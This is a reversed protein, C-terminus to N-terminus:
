HSYGLSKEGYLPLYRYYVELILVAMATNYLRGGQDGHEDPFYWSGSEHGRKSQTNVLHDRLVGNWAEWPEGGYHSMVMTGYYNFYLDHRSPALDYIYAVGLKLSSHDHRWGLYMRLLLGIATPSPEKGPALYGYYAGQETQVSDLFMRTSVITPTPVRLGAMEASKLAMVQWGTVTTDGKQGPNYRWGGADHQAHAIFDVAQQALTQISQDRTMAYAECLALTAIGQGYMSGQQLDAGFKTIKAQRNLYNLGARIEDQYPGIEPTYGAGLFALLALGTAATSCRSAGPNGCRGDCEGDQHDFWWGGSPRQHAALWRLGAEVASESAPTGGRSAVLEKRRDLDRGEYGGGVPLGSPRDLTARAIKTTPSVNSETPQKDVTLEPQVIGANVDPRMSQLGQSETPLIPTPSLDIDFSDMEGPTDSMGSSLSLVVQEPVRFLIFALLILLGGHFLLSALVAPALKRGQALVAEVPKSEEDNESQVRMM